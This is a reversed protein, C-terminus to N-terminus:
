NKNHNFFRSCLAYVCIQDNKSASDSFTLIPTNLEKFVRGWEIPMYGKQFSVLTKGEVTSLSFSQLFGSIDVNMRISEDVNTVIGNYRFLSKKWNENYRALLNGEENLIEVYNSLFHGTKFTAIVKQNFDTLVYTHPLLTSLTNPILWKYWSVNSDKIEGLLKGKPNFLLVRMTPAPMFTMLVNKEELPTKDSIQFDHPITEARKKYLTYCIFYVISLFMFPTITQWVADIKLVFVFTLFLIACIAVTFLSINLYVTATSKYYQKINM